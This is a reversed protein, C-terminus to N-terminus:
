YYYILQWQSNIIAPIQSHEQGDSCQDDKVEGERKWDLEIVERACNLFSEQVKGPISQLDTKSTRESQLNSLFGTSLRIRVAYRESRFLPIIGYQLYITDQFFSHSSFAPFERPESERANEGSRPQSAVNKGRIRLSYSFFFVLIFKFLLISVSDEAGRWLVCRGIGLLAFHFISWELLCNQFSQSM